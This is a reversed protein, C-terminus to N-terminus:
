AQDSDYRCADREESRHNSLGSNPPSIRTVALTWTHPPADPLHLLTTHLPQVFSPSLNSASPLAPFSTSSSRPAASSCTLHLLCSPLRLFLLTFHVLRFALRPSTSASARVMDNSTLFFCEYSISNPRETPATVRMLKIVKFPGPHAENAACPDARLSSITQEVTSSLLAGLESSVGIVASADPLFVDKATETTPLIPVSAALTFASALLLLRPQIMQRTVPTM